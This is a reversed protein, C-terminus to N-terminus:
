DAEEGDNKTLMVRMGQTGWHHILTIEEPMSLSLLDSLGM